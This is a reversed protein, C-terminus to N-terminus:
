FPTNQLLIIAVSLILVSAAPLSKKPPDQVKLHMALAGIMLAAIVVAAPVVLPSIWIGIILMLAGVIKLGGVLYLTFPPLGYAAFEEKM